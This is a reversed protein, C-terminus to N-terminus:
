ETRQHATRFFSQVSAVLSAKTKTGLVSALESQISEYSVGGTAKTLLEITENPLLRGIMLTPTGTVGLRLGEAQDATLAQSPTNLCATFQSIDLGISAADALLGADALNKQNAFIRDHMQWFRSQRGACDAATAARVARNHISELPFHRFFYAVRGTDVFERVFTPVIDRASKGCFPCQFDSFEIVAIQPTGKRQVQVSASTTGKMAVWSRRPADSSQGNFAGGSGLMTAAVVVTAIIVCLSSLWELILTVRGRAESM